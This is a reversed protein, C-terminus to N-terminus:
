GKKECLMEFARRYYSPEKGTLDGREEIRALAALAGELHPRMRRLDKPAAGGIAQEPYCRSLRGIAPSVLAYAREIDRGRGARGDLRGM